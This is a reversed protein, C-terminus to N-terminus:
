SRRNAANAFWDALAAEMGSDAAFMERMAQAGPDPVVQGKWRELNADVGGGGGPGFFFVALEGPGGSGPITAQLARMRSSPAAQMWGQPLPVALGAADVPASLQVDAQNGEGNATEGSTESACGGLLPTLLLLLIFPERSIRPFSIM